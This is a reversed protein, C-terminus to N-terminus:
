ETLLLRTIGTKENGSKWEQKKIGRRGNGKEGKVSTLLSPLAVRFMEGIPMLYYDAAWQILQLQSSTFIPEEDLLEEILKLPISYSFDKEERLVIGIAKRRGLPVLVRQGPQVKESFEPSVLYTLPEELPAIVAVSVIKQISSSMM